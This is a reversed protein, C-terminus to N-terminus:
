APAVGLGVSTAAQALQRDWTVMVTAGDDADLASALHIADYGRLAFREALDGATMALSADLEITAMSAFLNGLQAIAGRHQIPGIRGGRGAAALASRGEPYAAVSTIRDDVADWLGDVVEGEPEVLVLKVLASTDFYAIM